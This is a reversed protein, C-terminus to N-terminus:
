KQLAPAVSSMALDTSGSLASTGNVAMEPLSAGFAVM